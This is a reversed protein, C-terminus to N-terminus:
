SWDCESVYVDGAANVTLGASGVLQTTRALIPSVTRAPHGDTVRRDIPHDDGM